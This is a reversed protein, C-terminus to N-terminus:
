IKQVILWNDKDLRPENLLLSNESNSLSLEAKILHDLDPVLPVLVNM